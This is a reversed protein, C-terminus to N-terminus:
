ARRLRLPRVSTLASATREGPGRPNWARRTRRSRASTLAASQRQHRGARIRDLPLQHLGKKADATDPVTARCRKAEIDQEYRLHDLIAPTIPTTEMRKRPRQRGGSGVPTKPSATRAVLTCARRVLETPSTLAPSRMALTLIAQPPAGTPARLMEGFSATAEDDGFGDEMKITTMLLPAEVRPRALSNAVAGFDRSRERAAARPAQAARQGRRPRDECIIRAAQQAM